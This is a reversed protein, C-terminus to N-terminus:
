WPPAILLPVLIYIENKPPKLLPGNALIQPFYNKRTESKKIADFSAINEVYTIDCNRQLKLIQTKM